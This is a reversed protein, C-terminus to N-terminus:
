HAGLRGGACELRRVPHGPGAASITNRRAAVLESHVELQQSAWREIPKCNDLQGSREREREREAQIPLQDSIAREVQASTNDRERESSEREAQIPLQYTWGHRHSQTILPRPIDLRTQSQTILPRPIDLM